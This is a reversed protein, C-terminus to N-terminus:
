IMVFPVEYTGSDKTYGVSNPQDLPSFMPLAFMFAIASFIGFMAYVARKLKSKSKRRAKPHENYYENYISDVFDDVFENNVNPNIPDDAFDDRLNLEERPTIHLAHLKDYAARSLDASLTEYALNLLQMHKTSGGADPHHNKAHQVYALRVQKADALKDVGLLEYYDVFQGGPM